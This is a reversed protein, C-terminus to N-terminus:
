IGVWLIARPLHESIVSITGIDISYNFISCPDGEIGPVSLVLPERGFDMCFMFYLMTSNPAVLPKRHLAYIQADCAVEDVAGRTGSTASRICERRSKQGQKTRTGFGVVPKPSIGKGKLKRDDLGKLLLMKM